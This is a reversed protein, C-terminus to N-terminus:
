ESLFKDLESQFTEYPYAGPILVGTVVGNEITGIVFGPTGQIGIDQGAQYEADIEDQYQSSSYCTDFKSEDVGLDKALAYIVDDSESNFASLHFEKYVDAGALNYVCKAANSIDDGFIPFDHFVYLVKGTDVYDSM